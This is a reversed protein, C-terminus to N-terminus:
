ATVQTGRWLTFGVGQKTQKPTDADMQEDLVYLAIDGKSKQVLVTDGVTPAGNVQGDHIIIEFVPVTLTKVVGTNKDKRQVEITRKGCASWQGKIFVACANLFAQVKGRDAEKVMATRENPPRLGGVAGM